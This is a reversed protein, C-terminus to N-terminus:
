ILGKHINLSEIMGNLIDKKLTKSDKFVELIPHLKTSPLDCILIIGNITYGIGFRIKRKNSDILYINYQHLGGIYIDTIHMYYSKCVKNLELVVDSVINEFNIYSEEKQKKKFINFM